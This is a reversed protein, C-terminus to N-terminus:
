IEELKSKERQLKEIDSTLIEPPMTQILKLVTEPTKSDKGRFLAYSLQKIQSNSYANNKAKKILAEAIEKCDTDSFDSFYFKIVDELDDKNPPSVPINITQRLISADIDLPENTTLMLTIKNEACDKIFNAFVKAAEKDSGFDDFEDIKIVTHRSSNGAEKKLRELEESLEEINDPERFKPMLCKGQESVARVLATKGVGTPGYFLIAPPATTYSGVSELGLPMIFKQTLENKIKEYGAIRGYGFEKENEKTNKATVLSGMENILQSIQEKEEESVCDNIEKNKAIEEERGKKTALTTAATKSNNRNVWAHTFEEIASRSFNQLNYVFTRNKFQRVFAESDLTDINIQEFFEHEKEIFVRYVEPYKELNEQMEKVTEQAEKSITASVTQDCLEYITAQILSQKFLKFARKKLTEISNDDSTFLNSVFNIAFFNAGRRGFDKLSSLTTAIAEQQELPIKELAEKILEPSSADKFDVGSIDEFPNQSTFLGRGIFYAATEVTQDRLNMRDEKVRKVYGRGMKETILISLSSNVARVGGTIAANAGGGTVATTGTAGSAAHAGIGLWSTILRAGGVGLTQGAFMEKTYYELSAIPPVKLYAAMSSFMAFQLVRLPITDAGVAAGEGLAASVLGCAASFGHIMNKCNKESEYSMFIAPKNENKNGAFAIEPLIKDEQKDLLSEYESFFDRVNKLDNKYRVEDITLIKKKELRQIEEQSYKAFFKVVNKRIKENYIFKESNQASGFIGKGNKLNKRFIREASNYNELPNTIKTYPYAGDTFDAGIVPYFGARYSTAPNTNKYPAITQKFSVKTTGPIKM